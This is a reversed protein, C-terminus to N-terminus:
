ICHINRIVPNRKESASLRGELLKVSGSPKTTRVIHVGVLWSREGEKPNAKSRLILMAPQTGLKARVVRFRGWNLISEIVPHCTESCLDDGFVYSKFEKECCRCKCKFRTLEYQQKHPKM